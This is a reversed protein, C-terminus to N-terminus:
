LDKPAHHRLKVIDERVIVLAHRGDSLRRWEGFKISRGTEDEVEILRPGKSSPFGDFIIRVEKM